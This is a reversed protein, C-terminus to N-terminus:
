HFGIVGWGAKEGRRTSPPLQGCKRSDLRPTPPHVSTKSQNKKRVRTPINGLKWTIQRWPHAPSASESALLRVDESVFKYGARDRFAFAVPFWAGRGPSGSQPRPVLALQLLVSSTGQGECDGAEAAKVVPVAPWGKLEVAHREGKDLTQEDEPGVPADQSDICSDM